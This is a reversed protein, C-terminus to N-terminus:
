IVPWIGARQLDAVLKPVTQSWIAYHFKAKLLACNWRNGTLWIACFKCVVRPDTLCHIRESCFKSFKGTLPRKEFFAMLPCKKRVRAVEPRWLEARNYISSFQRGFSDEVPHRTEMKENSDIWLWEGPRYTRVRLASGGWFVRRRRGYWMVERCASRGLYAHGSSTM